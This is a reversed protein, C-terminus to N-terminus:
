QKHVAIPVRSSLNNSVRQKLSWAVRFLRQPGLSFPLLMLVRKQVPNLLLSKCFYGAARRRDGSLLEEEAVWGYAEAIQRRIM